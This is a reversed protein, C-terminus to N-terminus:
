DHAKLHGVIIVGIKVIDIVNETPLDLKNIPQHIYRVEGEPVFSFLFYRM